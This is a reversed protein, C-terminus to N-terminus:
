AGFMDNLKARTIPGVTGTTQIGFASQFLQVSKQTLGGYNGTATAISSVPFMGLSQLAKQLAVVDPGSSGLTMDVNWTHVPRAPPIAGVPMVDSQNITYIAGFLLPEYEESLFQQGPAGSLTNDIALYKKGNILGFDTVAVKHYWLNPTSPSSPPKPYQSLATGNDVGVMSVMVVKKQGLDRYTQIISAITEFDSSCELFNGPRYILAVQKADAAYGIPDEAEIETKGDTPLLHELTMGIKCALKTATLSNSGGGPQVVYPYIARPSLERWVKNESLEDVALAKALAYAVCSSQRGQNRTPYSVFGGAPSKEVWVAEKIGANIEEHRWAAPKLFDEPRANEGTSIIPETNM